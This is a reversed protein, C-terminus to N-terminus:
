EACKVLRLLRVLFGLKEILQPRQGLM